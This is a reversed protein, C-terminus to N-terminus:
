SYASVMVSWFGEPPQYSLVEPPSFPSRHAQFPVPPVPPAWFTVMAVPENGICAVQDFELAAQSILPGITVPPVPALSKEMPAEGVEPETACPEVAVAVMEVDVVEPLLWLTANVAEPRGVPAVALKEGVETVLPEDDVREMAVM